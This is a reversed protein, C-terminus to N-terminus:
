IAYKENRMRSVATNGFRVDGDQKKARNGKLRSFKASEAMFLPSIAYKENHMHSVATNGSRAFFRGDGDHKEVGIEKLVCLNRRNAYM